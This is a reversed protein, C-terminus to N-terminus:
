SGKKEEKDFFRKDLKERIGNELGGAKLTLKGVAVDITYRYILDVLMCGVFVILAVALSYPILWASQAYSANQFIRNWLLKRSIPHDHLLYVGFTAGSLTNVARNCKPKKKEFLLFLAASFLFIPLMRTDDILYYTYPSFVEWKLALLDPVIFSAIIAAFLIGSAIACAKLTPLLHFGHLRVYGAFSYLFIFWVFDNEQFSRNTITPILSWCIFMLVLLKAYTKKQLSILFRSLFPHFLYMVFYTSAFWWNEQTVPFLSYVFGRLVFTEWGVACFFLYMVVSYIFLKSWFKLIKSFRFKTDAVLFYGSIMVFCNTGVRGCPILFQIWFRNLSIVSVDYYFGGHVSFHHAVILLMCIIRLIEFNSNRERGNLM